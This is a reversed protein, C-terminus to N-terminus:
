SFHFCVLLIVSCHCCVLLTIHCCCVLLTVSCCCVLLTVSCYCCVLLTVSCHCCVVLPTVSCYCCMDLPTVSCNCCMLLTLVSYHCCVLLLLLTQLSLFTFPSHLHITLHYSPLSHRSFTFHSIDALCHFLACSPPHFPASHVAISRYVLSAIPLLM